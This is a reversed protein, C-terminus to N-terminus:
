WVKSTLVGSKLLTIISLCPASKEWAMMRSHLTLRMGSVAVAGVVVKQGVEAFSPRTGAVTSGMIEVLSSGQSARLTGAHLTSKFNPVKIIM